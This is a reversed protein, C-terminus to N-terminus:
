ILEYNTGDKTDILKVGKTLLEERIADASAYDKNIKALKREEIKSLIYNEFELDIKNVDETLLDLSFVEDFSKILMRKTYDNIDSKLVDYLM